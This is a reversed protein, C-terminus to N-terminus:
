RFVVGGRLTWYQVTGRPDDRVHDRFELRAGVRDKAWLDVGAGANWARFGGDANSMRTYGGTIFPSVRRTAPLLHVV